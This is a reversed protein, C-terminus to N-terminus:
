AFEGKRYAPFYNNAGIGRIALVKAYRKQDFIRGCFYSTRTESTWGRKFRALGDTAEGDVGAIAGFNLWRVQGRFRELAFWYLAYSAMLEYGVANVAMLHSHAVEGQVYWLHAGVPVGQHTARFMVIGPVRLQQAFANRSFAKFGKLQHRAILHAYLEVWEDLFEQPEDCIEVSVSGLAKQAYYRHHKSVSKDVPQRLDAVFHQKFPIVVDPFCQKLSQEDCAGFPDTVLSLCVLDTGIEALDAQLPTWDRCTFLPYCGMADRDTFSPILRELIQGGSRPLLRPNGFEALSEAYGSHMYGTAPKMRGMM